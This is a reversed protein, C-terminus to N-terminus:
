NIQGLKINYFNNDYDNRDLKLKELTQYKEM